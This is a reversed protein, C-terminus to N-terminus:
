RARIIGSAPDYIWRCIARIRCSLFSFDMFIDIGLPVM